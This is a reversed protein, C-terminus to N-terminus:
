AKVAQEPRAPMPVMVVPLPFPVQQRQQWWDRGKKGVVIQAIEHMGHKLPRTVRWTMTFREEDPEFVITDLRAIHDEPPGKKPFIHVPAEFYPLTFQRLGDPTFGALTVPLPGTPIPIQQDQPAAQYYREDFDAPLFPFVEDRWQADYTGGFCARQSWGRGLPGFAMPRYDGTPWTVPEGPAETFPLPKGDVWDNKLQLRYGKGAPNRMFAGHESTDPSEHDVGGYAVDYSVPLKVFPQPASPRIGTVGAEWLRPGVVDCVKDMGGVALRVQMRTTPQGGPAHASGTLLVDCQHKRPAYDIEQIPASFGPEGAFTDAMILPQQVEHLSVQQGPAPLVFTGKIVVVLLERGSPELGMNFGAVMRTANIMDM